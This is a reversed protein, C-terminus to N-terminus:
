KQLSSNIENYYEIIRDTLLQMCEFAADKYIQSHLQRKKFVSDIINKADDNTIKLTIEMDDKKQLEMLLKICVFRRCNM